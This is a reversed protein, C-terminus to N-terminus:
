PLGLPLKASSIGRIVLAVLTEGILWGVVAV